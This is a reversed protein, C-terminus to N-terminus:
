APDAHLKGLAAAAAQVGARLKPPSIVEVQGAWSLVQRQVAYLASTTFEVILRGQKDHRTTQMKTWYFDQGGPTGEQTFRLKVKFRGAKSQHADVSEQLYEDLNFNARVQFIQQDLVTASTIRPFYFTRIDQRLHDFGILYWERNRIVIGYPDLKRTRVQGDRATRYVMQLTEGLQLGWCVNKWVSPNIMPTLPGEFRMKESLLAHERRMPAPFAEILNNITNLLTQYLPTPKFQEVAQRAVLLALHSEPGAHAITLDAVDDAYWWFNGPKNFQLPLGQQYRMFELDRRITRESVELERALNGATFRRKQRLRRHIENIRQQM